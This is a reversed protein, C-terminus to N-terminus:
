AGAEFGLHDSFWRGLRERVLTTELGNQMRVRFGLERAHLDPGQYRGLVEVPQWDGEYQLAEPRHAAEGERVGVRLWRPGKYAPPVPWGAEECLHRVPTSFARDSVSFSGHALRLVVAYGDPLPLACFSARRARIFLKHPSGGVLHRCRIAQELVLRCEAAAVRIEFPTLDGAYDVTEGEADVLAAAVAPLSRCLQALAENFASAAQDRRARRDPAPEGESALSCGKPTLWRM